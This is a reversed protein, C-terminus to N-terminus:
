GCLRAVRDLDREVKVLEVDKVLVCLLRDCVSAKVKIIIFIVATTKVATKINYRPKNSLYCFM